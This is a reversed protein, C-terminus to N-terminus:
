QQQLEHKLDFLLRAISDYKVDPKTIHLHTYNISIATLYLYKGNHHIKIDRQHITAAKLRRALTGPARFFRGAPGPQLIQDYVYVCVVRCVCVEICMSVARCSYESGFVADKELDGCERQPEM